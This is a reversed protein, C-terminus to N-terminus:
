LMHVASFISKESLYPQNQKWYDKSFHHCCFIDRLFGFFTHPKKREDTWKAWHHFFFYFVVLLIVIAALVLMPVLGFTAEM